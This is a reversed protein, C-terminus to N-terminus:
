SLKSNLINFYQKHKLKWEKFNVDGKYRIKLDKLFPKHSHSFMDVFESIFFRPRKKLKSKNKELM